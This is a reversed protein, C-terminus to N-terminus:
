SAESDSSGSSSSTSSSSSSDSDSSSSSSSLRSAASEKLEDLFIYLLYVTLFKPLNLFYRTFLNPLYRTFLETFALLFAFEPLYRWKPYFLSVRSPSMSSFFPVTKVAFEINMKITKNANKAIWEWGEM